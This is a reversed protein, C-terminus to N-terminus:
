IMKLFHAILDGGPFLAALTDGPLLTDAQYEIWIAIGLVSLCQYGDV